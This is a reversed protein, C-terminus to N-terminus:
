LAADRGAIDGPCRFEHVLREEGKEGAARERGACQERDDGAVSPALM